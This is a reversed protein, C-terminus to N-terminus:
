LCTYKKKPPADSNQIKEAPIKGVFIIALQKRFETIGLKM